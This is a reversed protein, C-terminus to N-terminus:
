EIVEPLLFKSWAVLMEGRKIYDHIEEASMFKVFQHRKPQFLQPKGEWKLAEYINWWHNRIGFRCGAFVVKQIIRRINVLKIGTKELVARRIADGPDEHPLLHGAPLALGKPKELRYLVLFEGKENRIVAGVSECWDRLVM